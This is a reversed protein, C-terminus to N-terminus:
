GKKWPFHGKERKYVFSFFTAFLLVAGLIKLAQAWAPGELIM